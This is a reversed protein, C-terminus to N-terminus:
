NDYGYFVYIATEVQLNHILTNITLMLSLYKEYLGVAFCGRERM